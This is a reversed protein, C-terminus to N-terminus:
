SKRYTLKRRHSDSSMKQISHEQNIIEDEGDSNKQEEHASTNETKEVM